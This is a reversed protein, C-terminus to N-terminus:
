ASANYQVNVSATVTVPGTEISTGADGGNAVATEYRPVPYSVDHTSVAWVGTVQLDAQEALTDAQGRANDMADALADQRLDRRTEDSLTYRVDHINTVGADVTADIVSGLRDIDQVEIMLVHRARYQTEESRGDDHRRERDEWLNYDVTRVQESGIGMAELASRVQSINEAVRTRATTPDDATAQVGVRLMGLDPQATAQGSASVQITRSASSPSSTAQPNDPSGLGAVAVGAGVLTTTLALAGILAFLRRMMANRGQETRPLYKKYPCIAIEGHGTARNGRNLDSGVPVRM